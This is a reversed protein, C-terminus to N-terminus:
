RYAAKLRGWSTPLVPVNNAEITRIRGRHEDLQVVMETNPDTITFSGNYGYNNNYQLGFNAYDWTGLVRFKYEYTGPTAMTVARTWVSGAHDAVLGTGWGGLEPASGMLELVSGAPYAHDNAV